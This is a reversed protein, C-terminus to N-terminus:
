RTKFGFIPVLMACVSRQDAPMSPPASICRRTQVRSFLTLFATNGHGATRVQDAADVSAGGDVLVKVTKDHDSKAAIMLATM